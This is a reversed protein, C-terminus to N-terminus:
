HAGARRYLYWHLGSLPATPFTKDFTYRLGAAIDIQPEPEQTVWSERHTVIWDPGTAPWKGQEVYSLRKITEARPLYYSMEMGIRFDHDGAITVSDGPTSAAMYEIADRYQGRGDKALTAINFANVIVFAGAALLVSRKRGETWWRGMTLGFLLLTFVGAILFHRTYVLDSARVLVLAIPFIIIAGAFFLALGADAKRTAHIGAALMAVVLVCCVLEVGSARGAAVAWALASGYVGVFSNAPTGGGAVVLRLDIVWLLALAMVPVAHVRVLERVVGVVGGGAIYGRWGTWLIAAALFAAYIPHSLIGILCALWYLALWRVGRTELTPELAYFALLTSFAVGSYGRAETSYLVMEYSLAFAAASAVGTASGRRLGIAGAIGVASIGLLYSPLHYLTASASPGLFHLWLTNLHHNIEHHMTFVGWPSTLETAARLAWVEDLWLDKGLGALRVFAAIVVLVVVVVRATRPQDVAAEEGSHATRGHQTPEKM